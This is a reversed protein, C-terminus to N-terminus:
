PILRCVYKRMAVAVIADKSVCLISVISVFLPLSLTKRSNTGLVLVRLRFKRNLSLNIHSTHQHHMSGKMPIISPRIIDRQPREINLM